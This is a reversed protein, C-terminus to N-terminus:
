QARGKKMESEAVDLADSVCKLISETDEMGVTFRVLSEEVGHEEAWQMRDPMYAIATFATALTFVTGLTAGKFCKLASYFVKAAELSTFTVSLLYGYGFAPLGAKGALPNRCHDYNERTRYKPYHVVRLVSDKAGGLVSRQYLLDSLQEANHNTVAVREKYERSNMELVLADSGFFTDEYTAEMRAKFQAYFRSTPNLMMAGGLVNANGSFLKTLSSVAVDCYPFLQVNMYGGVTEDIILPFNYRDALTRLRKIDASRLHPNGPFDTFLALIAPCEPTGTELLTELDNLTDNTFFHYGASSPLELLKYSDCYLMNVQAVKRGDADYESGVTSALLKHMRWIAQMGSAFLYVDDPSAGPVGRMNEVEEAFGSFRTRIVRKADEVSDLPSHRKYYESLSSGAPPLSLTPRLDGVRRLLCLEALRPSLGDGSFTYFNFVGKREADFLVAFVQHGPPPQCLETVCQVECVSSPFNVHIHSRCEEAQLVTPFLFCHRKATPDLAVIIIDTLKQLLPHIRFRPYSTERMFEGARGTCVLINDEWQPLHNVVTHPIRPPVSYGRLPAPELPMTLLTSARPSHASAYLRRKLEILQDADM